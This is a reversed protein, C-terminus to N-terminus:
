SLGSVWNDYGGVLKFIVSDEENFLVIQKPTLYYPWQMETDLALIHRPTVKSGKEIPFSFYQYERKLLQYGLPTLRLGKNKTNYFIDRPRMDLGEGYKNLLYQFIQDHISIQNTLPSVM